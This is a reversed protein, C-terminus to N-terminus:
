EKVLKVVRAKDATRLRVMYMGPRLPEVSVAYPQGPNLMAVESRVLRGVADLIEIVTRVPGQEAGGSLMVKFASAAPNPFLSVDLLQAVEYRQEFLGTQGGGDGGDGGDGGGGEGPDEGSGDDPTDNVFVINGQQFGVTLLMGGAEVTGVGPEGLTWSIMMDGATQEGGAAAVVWMPTSGSQAHAMVALGWFAWALAFIRKTM